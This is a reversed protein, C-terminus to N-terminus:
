KSYYVLIKLYKWVIQKEEENLKDWLIYIKSFIPKLYNDNINLQFLRYDHKDILNIMNNNINENFINIFFSNDTYYKFNYFKLFNNYETDLFMKKELDIIFENLYFNFKEINYVM